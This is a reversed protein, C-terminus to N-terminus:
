FSAEDSSALNAPFYQHLRLVSTPCSREPWTLAYRVVFLTSCGRQPSVSHACGAVETLRPALDDLRTWFLTTCAYWRRLEYVHGARQRPTNTTTARRAIPEGRQHNEKAPTTRRQLRQRTTGTEGEEGEEGEGGQMGARAAQWDKGSTGSSQPGEEESADNKLFDLCENKSTYQQNDGTCHAEATDCISGALLNTSLTTVDALSSLNFQQQAHAALADFQWQLWRFTADYQSIEGLSNYTADFIIEVPNVVNLATINFDVTISLSAINGNGTM